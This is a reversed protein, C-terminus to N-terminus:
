PRPCYGETEAVPHIHAMDTSHGPAPRPAGHWRWTTPRPHDPLATRGTSWLLTPWPPTTEPADPFLRTLVRSCLDAPPDWPLELGEAVDHTHVLTEVIGMAAFGEPDSVGYVHYARVRPPTTRVMAALLAGSAELVQLLGEPGATRDAHVSNVPGGPKRSGAEFPVYGDLPPTRPGLQVAYAFLDDGIHEVTQWCDWELSGARRDWGDPPAARLRDVALRVALDVDDATVRSATPSPPPPSAPTAETSRPM